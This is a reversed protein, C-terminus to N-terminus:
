CNTALWEGEDSHMRDTQLYLILASFVFRADFCATRISHVSDYNGIPCHIITENCAMLTLLIALFIHFLLVESFSQVFLIGYGDICQVAAICFNSLELLSENQGLPGILNHRYNLVLFLLPRKYM